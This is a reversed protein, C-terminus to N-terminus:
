RRGAMEVCAFVAGRLHGSSQIGLGSYHRSGRGSFFVPLSIKDWRRRTMFIEDPGPTSSESPGSRGDSTVCDSGVFLLWDTQISESLQDRFLRVLELADAQAFNTFDIKLRTTPTRLTIGASECIAM